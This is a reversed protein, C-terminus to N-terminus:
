QSDDNEGKKSSTPLPSFGRTKDPPTSPPALPAWGRTEPPNPAQPPLPRGDGQRQHIKSKIILLLAALLQHYANNDKFGEQIKELAPILGDKLMEQTLNDDPSLTALFRLVITLHDALEQAEYSFGNEQYKEKLKVLFEGRQYGDGFLQYGVYPYCTPNLDFTSTYIEELRPIPTQAIFDFFENILESVQPYHSALLDAQLPEQIKGSPYDLLDAFLNYLEQEKM